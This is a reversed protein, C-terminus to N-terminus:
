NQFVTLSHIYRFNEFLFVAKTVFKILKKAYEEKGGLFKGDLINTKNSFRGKKNRLRSGLIEQRRDM